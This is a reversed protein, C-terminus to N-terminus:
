ALFTYESNKYGALKKNDFNIKNNEIKHKLLDTREKTNTNM